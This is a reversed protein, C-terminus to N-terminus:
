HESSIQSKLVRAKLAYAGATVVKDGAALGSRIVTRGGTKEGPEVARPEFGSAGQVFVTPQGQLLLIAGDPVALVPAGTTGTSIEATAFMEPKLRGDRNDVEIRAPIARTDKDMVSAVYTVRGPFRVGPYAAVLVAAPAGVRVKALLDETLNAEIWLRSLDAVTFVPESPSALEGITAKKQIISGALPARLTFGTQDGGGSAGLLRVKDRAAALEANAKELEAGARLMERRPVIEEAALRSARQYDAEAMRQAAQAQRLSSQSEGLAVSDLTALAQGAKVTDGLNAMVRVIRGEVRPAVRAWRDQNAKITATVSVIDPANQPQIAQVQLGARTAEEASLQIGTDKKAEAEKHGEEAPKGCAALLFALVAATAALRMRAAPRHSAITRNM